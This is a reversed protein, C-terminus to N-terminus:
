PGEGGKAPGEKEEELDKKKKRKRKKKGLGLFDKLVDDAASSLYLIGVIAVCPLKDWYHYLITGVGIMGLLTLAGHIRERTKQTFRSRRREPTVTTVSGESAPRNLALSRDRGCSSCRGLERWCEDHHRALCDACALWDEEAALVEDHCYPCRNPSRDVEVKVREDAV